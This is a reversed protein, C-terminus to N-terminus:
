SGPPAPIRQVSDDMPLPFTSTEITVSLDTRLVIIRNGIKPSVLLPAGSGSAAANPFYLWDGSFTKRVGLLTDLNSTVGGKELDRLDKPYSGNKQQYDMLSYGIQKANMTYLARDSMTRQQMIMPTILGAIMGIFPIMAFSGYGLILGWKARKPRDGKAWAIHGMIIAPLAAILCTPLSLIGCVLSATALSNPKTPPISPPM